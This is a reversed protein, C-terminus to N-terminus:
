KLYKKATEHVLVKEATDRDYHSPWLKTEIQKACKAALEHDLVGEEEDKQFCQLLIDAMLWKNITQYPEELSGDFWTDVTFIPTYLRLLDSDPEPTKIKEREPLPSHMEAIEELSVDKGDIVFHHIGSWGTEYTEWSDHIKAIVGHKNLQVIKRLRRSTKSFYNTSTVFILLNENAWNEKLWEKVRSIVEREKFEKRVREQDSKAKRLKDSFKGLETEDLKVGDAPSFYELFSQEFIKRWYVDELRNCFSQIKKVKSPTSHVVLNPKVQIKM